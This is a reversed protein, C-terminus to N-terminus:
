GVGLQFVKPVTGSLRDLECLRAGFADHLAPVANPLNRHFLLVDSKDKITTFMSKGQLDIGCYFKQDINLLQRPEGPNTTHSSVSLTIERRAQSAKLILIVAM